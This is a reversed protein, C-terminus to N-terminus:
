TSASCWCCTCTSARICYYTLAWSVASRARPELYSRVMSQPVEFPNAEIIQQMLQMRVGREGEREVERGLDEGIRERLVALSDFDGLSKAFEDDLDAYEPAKVEVINIHMRHPKTPGSADESNEPLDVDFDASEGAKLTVIADEVAPVSQGEGIVILFQRPKSPEATTQDDLPTIEVTVMDGAVPTADSKSRWVANEERLRQLVEDV